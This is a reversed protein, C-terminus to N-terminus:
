ISMREGYRAVMTRAAEDVVQLTEEENLSWNGHVLRPWFIVTAIMGLFQAAAVDPDDVNATGAA